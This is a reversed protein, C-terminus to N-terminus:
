QEKKVNDGEQMPKWFGLNLFDPFLDTQYHVHALIILYSFHTKSTRLLISDYKKEHSEKFEKLTKPLKIDTQVCMEKYLQREFLNIELEDSNIPYSVQLNVKTEEIIERLMIYLPEADMWAVIEALTMLFLSSADQYGPSKKYLSKAVEKRNGYLEPFMDQKRKRLIINQVLRNVLEYFEIEISEDHENGFIFGILLQLTIAHTDLLPMDFGSNYKLITKVIENQNSVMEKTLINRNILNHAIFYYLLDNMFDYCRLPYCIKESDCGQYMYLGKYQTALPLLKELYASYITLHLLVIRSFLNTILGNKELNNKLIWSWVKLVIRESSLKAPLINKANLSYFYIMNLILNISAFCKSVFRRNQKPKTPCNELQLDILRDLDKTNWGPADLLVLIKKFLSYSEDDCFLCENFLYKSFLETLYEIDWREFEGDAFERKIFGEFTPRTNEFLIGNHVFVIKIPLSNFKPTSSDEYSTDKAALISERVGDKLYFTKDNIDKANNGKLEFYWRYLIGDESKGIAVVDKGYQSQGKSNRPTAVIRFGMAELLMPFIYDLENDEKLSGLYDKIIRNRM